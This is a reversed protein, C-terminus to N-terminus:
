KCENFADPHEGRGAKTPSTPSTKSDNMASISHENMKISNLNSHKSMHSERDRSNDRGSKEATDQIHNSM